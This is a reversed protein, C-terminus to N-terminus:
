VAKLPELFWIQFNNVDDDFMHSIAFMFCFTSPERNLVFHRIADSFMHKLRMEDM